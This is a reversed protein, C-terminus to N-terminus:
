RNRHLAASLAAAEDRGAWHRARRAAARIKPLERIQRLLRGGYGWFGPTYGYPPLALPVYDYSDSYRHDYARGARQGSEAFAAASAMSVLPVAGVAIKVRHTMAKEM